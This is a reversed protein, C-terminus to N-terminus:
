NEKGLPTVEHRNHTGEISEQIWQKQDPLQIHMFEVGITGCYTEEVREVIERLTPNELGLVKDIFIHRDLDAETFGYSTYDLEANAPHVFIGLPDLKAKLHGRVRYARILMLARISDVIAARLEEISAHPAVAGNAGAMASGTEAIAEALGNGAGTGVVRPQRPSWSAGELARLVGPADERL